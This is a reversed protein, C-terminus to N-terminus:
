NAIVVRHGMPDVLEKATGGPASIVIERLGVHGSPAPSGRRSQWVNAALHHHYGGAALFTASDGLQATVDFGVIDRYFAEADAIDHTKLHVHGITTGEPAGDFPRDADALVSEVDLPLSAMAIRDGEWKWETRPRDRYLEVGHGDPDDLYFAESVLHDSAGTFRYQKSAIHAITRGLAARDPYLIATHYLGTARDPAPEAGREEILHLIPASGVGLSVQSGNRSLETLGALDRYFGLSRDLDAVALTVSAIRTASPLV